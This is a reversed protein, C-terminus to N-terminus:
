IRDLVDIRLRDTREQHVLRWGSLQAIAAESSMEGTLRTETDGLYSASLIRCQPGAQATLEAMLAIVNTLGLYYLMDSVVILDFPGPPVAGPVTRCELTVNALGGVREHAARVAAASADSALLRDCLPALQETLAGNACGLELARRYRRDDLAAVTRAFRDREYPEADYGWPDASGGFMADFHEAPVADGADDHRDWATRLYETGAFDARVAPSLTFGTATDLQSTHCALAAAKVAAEAGVPLARYGAPKFVGDVRQSVPMVRLADGHGAAVLRTALGFAAKHDRHADAPDTVVITAPALERVFADLPSGPSLDVATSSSAGDPQDLFLVPPVAGLLAALGAVVEARRRDALERRAVAPDSGGGDTVVVVAVREGAAAARALIAGAGLIEDDPHPAIVLLPSRVVDEPM